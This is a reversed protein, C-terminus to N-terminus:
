LYLSCQPLINLPVLSLQSKDDIIRVLCIAILAHGCRKRMRKGKRKIKTKNEEHLIYMHTHTIFNNVYIGFHMSLDSKIITLAVIKTAMCKVANYQM